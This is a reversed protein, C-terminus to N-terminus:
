PVQTHMARQPKILLMLMVLVIATLALGSAACQCVICAAVHPVPCHPSPQMSDGVLILAGTGPQAHRTRTWLFLLM